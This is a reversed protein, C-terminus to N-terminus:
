QHGPKWSGPAASVSFTRNGAERAKAWGGSTDFRSGRASAAPLSEAGSPWVGRSAARSIAAACSPARTATARKTAV